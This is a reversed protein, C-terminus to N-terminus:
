ITDGPRLGFKKRNEEVVYGFDAGYGQDSTPISVINDTLLTQFTEWSRKGKGQFKPFTVKRDGEPIKILVPNFWRIPKVDEVLKNLSQFDESEVVTYMNALELIAFKDARSEKLM